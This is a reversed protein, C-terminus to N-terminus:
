AGRETFIAAEDPGLRAPRAMGPREIWDPDAAAEAAGAADLLLLAAGEPPAVEAPGPGLNAAVGRVGRRGRGTLAVVGSAPGGAAEVDGGGLAALAAVVHFLPWLAGDEGLGLPGAAMAPAYSAVGGRAAAAAAAIAWAAAFPERQRPDAMAMAIRDGHPNAAVDDGYPNSRMGIAVLGLRLPKGGVLARASALVDGHAELTEHVSRDDGAHVIATTGFTAFDIAGPDPRCRNFETFNTLMGGGTEAEPFHARVLTVLDQPTPGEPWPGSPQHSKLYARPLAVVRQPLVGAALAAARVRALDAEAAAGTVIELTVPADLGALDLRPDAADTRLLVGAAGLRALAAPARGPLAPEHALAIEPARLTRRPAAAPGAASSRAGAADARRLTVAIRQRVTEGAAIRYPAPRALPRCYTKFSADTWNRQDEMEFIEGEFAIEVAVPGIRHRLGAIDFVPQGPSIAGPFACTEVSGDPRTVVVPTGAVGAIPHLLVFGTRNVEVDREAVLELRAELRAVGDSEGAAVELLGALAGDVTRFRRTFGAATPAPGPEDVVGLTRWSADRIPCDILRIAEIGDLRIARVAGGEVDFALGGAEPVDADQM